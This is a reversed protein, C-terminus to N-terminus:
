AIKLYFLLLRKQCNGLPVIKKTPATGLPASVDKTYPDVQIDQQTNNVINTGPLSEGPKLTINKKEANFKLPLDKQVSTILKTPLQLTINIGKEVFLFTNPRTSPNLCTKCYKIM